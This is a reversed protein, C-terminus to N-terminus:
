DIMILIGQLLWSVIFLNFESISYPNVWTLLNPKMNECDRVKDLMEVVTQKTSMASLDLKDRMLDLINVRQELLAEAVQIYLWM